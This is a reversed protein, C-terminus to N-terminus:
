PVGGKTEPSSSAAPDHELHEFIRGGVVLPEIGDVDVVIHAVSQYVSRRSEDIRRIAGEPDGALLPRGIGSGIRAVLSEPTARLWIVTGSSRVLERNRLAMVAGGAVAVVTREDSALVEGLVRSEEARFKAEGYAEFIESVSMGLEASLRADTDVFPCRMREALLRGVTTKGSGMMGILLIHNAPRM